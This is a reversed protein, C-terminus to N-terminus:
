LIETVEKVRINLTGEVRYLQASVRFKSNKKILNRPGNYDAPILRARWKDDVMVVASGPYIKEITVEYTKGTAKVSSTTAYLGLHLETVLDDKMLKGIASKLTSISVGELEMEFALQDIGVGSVGKELLKLYVRRTAREVKRSIERLTEIETEIIEPKVKVRNAEKEIAKLEMSTLPNLTPKMYTRIIPQIKNNVREAIRKMRETRRRSAYLYIMDLSDNAALITVKGPHKRGTRGRRQIYRIESPIPEYFIVHDVAPIDLGEEAISTAVLVNLSGSELSRIREAQEEQTLGKDMLKSAQGVFREARVSHVTNLELVLHSATDRYQTFVLM